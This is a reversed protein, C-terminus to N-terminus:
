IESARSFRSVQIELNRLRNAGNREDMRRSNGALYSVDSCQTRAYKSTNKHHTLRHTGNRWVFEKLLFIDREISSEIWCLAPSLM